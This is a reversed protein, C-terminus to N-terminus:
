VSECVCVCECVSVCVRRCTTSSMSLLSWRNSMAKGRRGALYSWIEHTHGLQAQLTATNVKPRSFIYKHKLINTPHAMVMYKYTYVTCM